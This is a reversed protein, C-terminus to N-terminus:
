SYITFTIVYLGGIDYGDQKILYANSTDGAMDQYWTDHFPEDSNDVIRKINFSIKPFGTFTSLTLGNQLNCKLVRPSTQTITFGNFGDDSSYIEEYYKSGNSFGMAMTITKSEFTLNQENKSILILDSEKIDKGFGYISTKDYELPLLYTNGNNLKLIVIQDKEIEITTNDLLDQLTTIIEGINFVRVVDSKNDNTNKININM